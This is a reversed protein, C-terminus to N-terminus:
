EKELVDIEDKNLGYIAYVMQDIESDVENVSNQLDVAKIKESGFYKMWESKEDLSMKRSNALKSIEKLFEPFELEYWNALKRSVKDLSFETKVLSVLNNSVEFLEDNMKVINEVMEEFPKQEEKGIRKIPIKNLYVKKVEAFLKGKEQSIDRYIRDVLKSNLIAIIYRLSYDESKKGINYVNNLNVSKSRDLHAIIRDATQRIIIKEEEYFPANPRPEALWEGHKIHMLPTEIFRYRQFNSGVICQTYGSSGKIFITFPKSKVIEKTQKPKGKGTQYPKVGVVVNSIDGLKPCDFVKNPIESTTLRYTGDSDILNEHEVELHGLSAEEKNKCIITQIPSKDYKSKEVVWSVTDGIDADNFVAYNYKAISRVRFVSFMSRIKKFYHQYTFTAPTIFGLIGSQNLLRMGKEYFLVYTNAQYEFSKYNEELYKLEISTLDAGYPPNGVVVDFGGSDMIEKFNDNWDFGLESIERDSILSNGVKINDELYTLKEQKNATKLWLSLKTIEVSESNLDVGYINNALIHTDWRFLETQEGKLLALESNVSEGECKLYDFVENLFAGSGCALDLVKINSLTNKYSEWVNIHKAVIKNYIIKGKRKGSRISKISEYDKDSLLPLKDFGHEIKKGYLWGGVAQEVIYRTIYSPTYFIGDKKRNGTKIEVTESDIAAVKLEEIDSVSQEFIHGLIDVSVDSDFDYEALKKFEECLSDSISLNDLDEVTSFLGGNYAPIGLKSNGRNIAKFLGKFNDWVPVPSYENQSEYAKRITNKPLLGKDEAFAIFLIRDLITQTYRIVDLPDIALNSEGISTILTERLMQYDAYLQSTIIKGTQESEKLLNRTNGSLLNEASLLLLLRAYGDHDQHKSLSFSEYDKRGYGIAYLRIERYNSVLVWQSGKVDMAYEWAQQVPSKNRGPIIADLDKTRAGKLEFPALIASSDASFDGLAVDVNGTGAPQNKAVTWRVGEISGIYGLVDILIRQIFEGDHQTEVNYIGNSLNEAWANLTRLKHAPIPAAQKLHKELVRPHFLGM